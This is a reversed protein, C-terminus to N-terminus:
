STGDLMLARKAREAILASWGVGTFMLRGDVYVDCEPPNGVEETLTFTVSPRQRNVEYCCECCPGGTDTGTSHRPAKAREDSRVRTILECRCRPGTRTSVAAMPCLPDHGNM